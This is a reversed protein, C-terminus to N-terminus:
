KIQWYIGGNQLNDECKAALEGKVLVLIQGSLM